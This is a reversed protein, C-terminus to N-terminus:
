KAVQEVKSISARVLEAAGFKGQAELEEARAELNAVVEARFAAYEEPSPCPTYKRNLHTLLPNSTAM